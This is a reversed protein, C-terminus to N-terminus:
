LKSAIARAVPERLESKGSVAAYYGNKSFWLGGHKDYFASPLDTPLELTTKDAASLSECPKNGFPVKPPTLKGTRQAFAGGALTVLMVLVAPLERGVRSPASM